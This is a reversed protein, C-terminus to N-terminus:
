EDNLDVRCVSVKVISVLSVILQADVASKIYISVLKCVPLLAIKIAEM